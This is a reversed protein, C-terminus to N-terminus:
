DGQALTAELMWAFKKHTRIRDQAFNAVDCEDEEEAIKNLDRYTSIMHNQGDLVLQLEEAWSETTINEEIDACDLIERITMPAYAGMSRILEGLDDIADQADEYIKQLLKHNSYFDDGTINFHVSHAKYYTVFNDSFVEVLKLETQM